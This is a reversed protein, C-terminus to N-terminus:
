SMDPASFFVWSPQTASDDMQSAPCLLRLLSSVTPHFHPLRAPTVSRHHPHLPPPCAHGWLELRLCPCCPGGPGEWGRYKWFSLHKDGLQACNKPGCPFVSIQSHSVKAKFVSFGCGEGASRCGLGWLLM